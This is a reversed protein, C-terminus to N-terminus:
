IRFTPLLQELPHEPGIQEVMSVGSWEAAAWEPGQEGGGVGGNPVQGRYELYLHKGEPASPTWTLSAVGVLRLVGRWRAVGILGLAASRWAGGFARPVSIIAVERM